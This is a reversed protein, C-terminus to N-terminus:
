YDEMGDVLQMLAKELEADNPAVGHWKHSGMMYDVGYGMSTTMLIIIPQGKGCLLQAEEISASLEDLDNGNSELVKWGFSEWKARLNLLSMVKDVPGDIQQGNYDVFAILNDIQRNPAYM